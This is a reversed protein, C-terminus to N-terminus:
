YQLSLGARIAHIHSDILGPIIVKNQANITKTKSGIYRGIAQDSGLASIKQDKIAIATPLHEIVKYFKRM